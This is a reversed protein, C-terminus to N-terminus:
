GHTETSARADGELLGLRRALDSRLVGEPDVAARVERFRALQPYMQPLLEAKLRSDKALYVRGGAGALLEDTADLVAHLGPSAAPLDVALTWGPSPFSLLGGSSEGFRKVVALYMPQRAARLRQVIEVLLAGGDEPVVFQYQLLGGAGYLRNWAGLADLPFFNAGVSVPSGHARRPSRRWRLENFARVTLPNLAWSPFGAPVTLRPRGPLALKGMEGTASAGARAGVSAAEAASAPDAVAASSPRDNCRLVVGRGFASGGSMLDLWAISYRHGEDPEMVDLAREISSTREIDGSLPPASLPAPRLVAEVIVGTLGMGGLTAHFLDAERERSLSRLAGDPTCLALSQVDHGFSGDRLHNKGHIDAAIAGGVTVHRTGPLVPLTLGHPALTRLLQGLTAGAQARVLPGGVSRGDAEAPIREAMADGLLEIECLRTMDAVFGGANQAADGYARGAGRAILGGATAAAALAEALEEPSQPSFVLATSPSTGGWGSLRRPRAGRVAAAGARHEASSAGRGASGDARGRSGAAREASDASSTAADAAPPRGLAM